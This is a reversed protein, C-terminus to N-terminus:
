PRPDIETIVEAGFWNQITGLADPCLKQTFLLALRKQPRSCAVYFLNRYRQYAESRAAIRDPNAVLQLFEDFNYDSWGRGVVVLVNEFQVGKVGHKTEFPSHGKLYGVLKIIESYHVAHLKELEELRRPKEEGGNPDFSALKDELRVIDDPLRPRGVARLHTIVDRVTGTVRLECLRKMADSWAAKDGNGTIQPAKGGLATFMEGYRRNLFAECAPELHDAFFAIHKDSKKAFSDNYRFVSPLSAYGLNTALARHTLMLVKTVAPSFDWGENMLATQVKALSSRALEVPLDGAWHAGTRRAGVWGNTHFVRVVGEADPDKVMQQLEPRMRNLSDVVVKVSRFNAEKGIRTLADHEISGCGDGYIKQWHDGFFGFLPARAAGLLHEKVASIWDANTDQYEDILIFPYKDTLLDRFRQSSLFTITLALIDDHHLSLVGDEISRHGLTYEVKLRDIDGAEARRDTWSPLNFVETRLKKQFSSILSWSFAHTTECFILPNGDTRSIIENKAVNTFTICAIRRYGRSLERGHRAVLYRLAEVLSYTKGAGAGAELVFSKGSELCALMAATARHAAEAAPNSKAVDVLRLPGIM